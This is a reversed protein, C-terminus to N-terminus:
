TSPLVAAAFREVNLRLCDLNASAAGGDHEVGFHRQARDYVLAEMQSAFEIGFHVADPSILNIAAAPNTNFQEVFITPKCFLYLSVTIFRVHRALRQIRRSCSACCHQRAPERKSTEGVM